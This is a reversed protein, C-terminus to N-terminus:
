KSYFTDYGSEANLPLDLCWAPPTLFCQHIYATATVGQAAKALFLGEDHTTTVVRYRRAGMLLQGAVIIRALAQVINECLLGGYIKVEQGKREYVYEPMNPDYDDGDFTEPALAHAVMKAVRKDHLRPYHMKMGNPLYITEKDWAICKHSGSIGNAMEEIIRQCMAWGAKIRHNKKRYAYVIRACEEESLHVPPGMTGLALTNRLRPPGMQYGLGLIGVKGVFRELDDLTTIERGYVVEGFKCYPDRDEGRAVKRQAKPLKMQENKFRDSRRFDELLDLQDWFWANVRAEIQGSDAVPLVYGKPALISRRLEGGRKLNQMNMKNGGGWRMTHAAAYKLYVPLPMGNKTAELFRGARTENTNSKVSMRAEVLDRVAEKPHELLEVFKLDTRAFAYVWKKDDQREEKPAKIWAPSVKMPPEVGEARLLDAFRASGILKKAKRVLIDEQSPNPGLPELDAKSLKIESAFTSAAIGLMLAKKAAIERELEKQVRPRDVKLVPDTFMRCTLDILDMEEAPMRPHMDRFIRYCEEVDNTCYPVTSNFLAKSWTRVGFTPDLGGELKGQGGFFISAEHLGAGVDNSFLGRVMSLSCYIKKPFIKYHHSLIFGDFQAHHALLSHTGWPISHLAAAIKSAPYCRTPKSGIKIGVMQAKFRPDRIYESTSLKKLTYEDDYYTEFDLTVLREWDTADPVIQVPTYEVVPQAKKLAGGWGM